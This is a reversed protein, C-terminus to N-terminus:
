RSARYPSGESCIMRWVPACDPSGDPRPPLVCGEKPLNRLYLRSTASTGLPVNGFDLTPLVCVESGADFTCDEPLDYSVGNYQLELNPQGIFWGVGLVQATAIENESGGANTALAVIGTAEIDGGEPTFSVELTAHDKGGSANGDDAKLTFPFSEIPAGSPRLLKPTFKGGVASEMTVSEIELIARSINQVEFRAVYTGFLPVKGLDIGPPNSLEVQGSEPKPDIEIRAIEKSLSDRDCATVLTLGAVLATSLLARTLYGM